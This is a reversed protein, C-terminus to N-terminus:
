KKQENLLLKVLEAQAPKGEKRFNEEALKLDTQAEKSYKKKTLKASGRCLYASAAKNGLDIAKSCDNLAAKYDGKYLKCSGRALLAERLFTLQTENFAQKEAALTSVIKQADEGITDCLMPLNSDIEAQARLIVIRSFRANLYNPNAQVAQNILLTAKGANGRLLLSNAQDVLQQSLQLDDVIKQKAVTLTDPSPEAWSNLSHCFIFLLLFVALKKPM